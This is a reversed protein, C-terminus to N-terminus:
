KNRLELRIPLCSPTMTFTYFEKVPPPNDIRSVIFNRAVMTMVMKIEALALYRGPCFRPGGGFPFIKRKLDDSGITDEGGLWREPVFEGYNPFENSWESALRSLALIQMDKPVLVGAVDMDDVTQFGLMPAVPKLRMSENNAADLYPLRDLMAMDSLLTANGLVADAENALRVAVPPQRSVFDLLWSISNSTTDEGAFVMTIANGIVHADTFDSEPEDRAAILAQLMNEPHERKHPDREMERRANAIFGTITREIREACATAARDAALPFRKWYAFPIVLRKGVRNFIQEIDRQLLDSDHELANIDQGMALGIAIDLTYAKLDRMVNIEAGERVATIWRRRLRETMAMMTPFFRRIVEPTLARMVLKRQKRWDEGEGTFVGSVGLEVLRDSLRAGRRLADPRDRLMSAILANDTVVVFSENGISFTYIPGHERAWKELTVHFQMRNIQLMNGIVGFGRPGPLDQLRKLARVDGKGDAQSAEIRHVPASTNMTKEKFHFRQAYRNSGTV